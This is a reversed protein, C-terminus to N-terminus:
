QGVSNLIAASLIDALVRNGAVTPHTGERYMEATWAPYTSMDVLKLGYKESLRELVQREPLWELGDHAMQLQERRPYLFLIGPQVRGTAKSLNALTAEFRALNVANPAGAPPLENM